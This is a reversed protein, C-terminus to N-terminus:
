AGKRRLPFRGSGPILGMDGSDGTNCISDEGHAGGPFGLPHTGAWNDSKKLGGLRYDALSRQGYPEEPLLVPTHQWKRRWPIKGVWPSFGARRHRGCQCAYEKGNHWMPLMKAVTISFFYYFYHQLSWLLASLEELNQNLYKQIYLWFLSKQIM